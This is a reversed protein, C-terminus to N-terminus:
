FGEGQLAVGECRQGIVPAHTLPMEGEVQSSLSETIMGYKHGFMIIIEAQRASLKYWAGPVPKQSYDQSQKSGRPSRALASSIEYSYDAFRIQVAANSSMICTETRSM